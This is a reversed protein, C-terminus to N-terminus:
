NNFCQTASSAGRFFGDGLYIAARGKVTDGGVMLSNNDLYQFLVNEGTSKFLKIDRGENKTAFSFVFTEFEGYFQNSKHWAETCFAGFKYGLEDEIVMVTLKDRDIKKLFTNMSTGHDSM